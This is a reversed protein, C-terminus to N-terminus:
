GIVAQLLDDDSIHAYRLTTQVKKHGLLKQVMAINQTKSLMRTAKTHRLSHLVFDKDDSLGMEVRLKDWVRRLDNIDILWGSFGELSTLAVDTLPVSRPTKTKTKWLRIWRGQVNEPTLGLLEGRRMGTELLIRLFTAVETEGWQVLLSFMKAEEHPELWRIRGNNEPNWKLVPMKGLWERDHAYQLVQNINVLKRNITVPSVKKGQVEYWKDLTITKVESADMDGVISIFEEVNRYATREYAKGKWLPLAATRLLSSLKM